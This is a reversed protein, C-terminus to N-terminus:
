CLTAYTIDRSDLYPLEGIQTTYLTCDECQEAAVRAPERCGVCVQSRRGPVEDADGRARSPASQLARLRAFNPL